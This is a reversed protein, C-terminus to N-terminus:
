GRQTLLRRCWDEDEASLAPIIPATYDLAYDYGAREYVSQFLTQLDVPVDGDDPHLPVPIAPLSQTLQIPWVDAMPRTNERSVVVYYQAPPLQRATPLREGGRLFDLEVLHVRSRLVLDRKRLYERRGESGARKNTPSLVEVVTVLERTDRHRVELFRERIEEPMALPVPVPAAVLAAGPGVSQAATTRAVMLDPVLSREDPTHEVYVREELLAVYAPRLSPVLAERLQSLFATHFDRWLQGEVFPDMGPFPSGM